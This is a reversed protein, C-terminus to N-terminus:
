DWPLGLFLGLAPSVVIFILTKSIGKWILATHGAKVLAAGIMGGILAHSSSTPLGLYWTIVDWICAGARTAFIVQQNVIDPTIIGTGMTKAIGLGSTGAAIPYV